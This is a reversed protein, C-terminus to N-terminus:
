NKITGLTNQLAEMSMTYSGASATGEFFVKGSEAMYARVKNVSFSVPVGWLVKPGVSVGKSFNVSGDKVNGRIVKEYVVGLTTGKHTMYVNQAKKLTIEFQGDKEGKFRSISSPLMKMMPSAAFHAGHEAIHRGVQSTPNISM